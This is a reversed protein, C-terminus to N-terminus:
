LDGFCVHGDLPLQPLQDCLLTREVAHEPFLEPLRTRARAAPHEIRDIARAV